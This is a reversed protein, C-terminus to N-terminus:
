RYPHVLERKLEAMTTRDISEIGVLEWIEARGYDVSRKVAKVILQTDYFIHHFWFTSGHEAGHSAEESLWYREEQGNSKQEEYALATHGLIKARGPIRRLNKQMSFDVVIPNSDSGQRADVAQQHRLSDGLYLPERGPVFSYATHEDQYAVYSPALDDGDLKHQFILTDGRVYYVRTNQTSANERLFRWAAPESFDARQIMEAIAIRHADSDWHIHESYSIKLVSQAQMGHGSSSLFLLVPAIRLLLM